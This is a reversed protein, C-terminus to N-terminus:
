VGISYIKNILKILKTRDILQTSVVRRDKASCVTSMKNIAEIVAKYDQNRSQKYDKYRVWYGMNNSKREMVENTNENKGVWYRDIAKL